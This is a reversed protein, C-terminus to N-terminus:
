TTRIVDLVDGYVEPESFQYNEKSEGEEEKEVSTYDYINEREEKHWSKEEEQVIRGKKKKFRGFYPLHTENNGQKEM